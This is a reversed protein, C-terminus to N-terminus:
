LTTDVGGNSTTTSGTFEAAGRILLMEASCISPEIPNYNIVKNLRYFIDGIKYKKRFDLNAIKVSDLKIPFVVVKSDKDTIEQIFQKYHANYLNNNTYSNTDYYLERPPGFSLDITPSNVNDLHGAYPYYYAGFLSPGAIKGSDTIVDWYPAGKLAGWYLVRINASKPNDGQSMYKVDSLSPYVFRYTTGSYVAVRGGIMVSPSFIIETKIDNVLFENDTSYVKQGYIEDHTNQYDRNYYDTDSKYTFIYRRGLLDGLPRVEIPQSYDVLGSWDVVNNNYYDNRKEILLNNSKNRDQEIYLNHMKIISMMLDRQKINTPVTNNLAMTGNEQIGTNISTGAFTSGSKLTVSSAAFGFTTSIRIYVRDNKNLPIDPSNGFFRHSLLSQNVKYLSYLVGAQQGNVERILQVYLAGIFTVTADITFKYAGTDPATYYGNSFNGGPDSDETDWPTVYGYFVEADTISQDVSQSVSFSRDFMAADDLKSRGGSYPIILRKFYASDFFTSTYTWGAASFIKDIYEKLYIAPAFSTLPFSTGDNKGDDLIPYVYGAGYVVSGWTARLNAYTLSHDYESFDLDTLEQGEIDQFFGGSEGVVVVNYEVKGDLLIISKLQMNGYLVPVDDQSIVVAAKVKPNFSSYSGIEFIYKFLNNNNKTGPLTITKSYPASRKQPERIDSISYNLSIPINDYLDVVGSSILELTTM